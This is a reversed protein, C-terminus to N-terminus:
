FDVIIVKERWDQVVWAHVYKQSFVSTEMM